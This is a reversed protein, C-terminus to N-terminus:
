SIVPGVLNEVDCFSVFDVEKLIERIEAKHM